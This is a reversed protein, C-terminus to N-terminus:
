YQLQLGVNHQKIKHRYSDRMKGIRGAFLIISLSGLLKYQVEPAM